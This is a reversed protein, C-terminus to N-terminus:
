RRSLVLGDLERLLKTQMVAEFNEFSQAAEIFADPGLIVEAQFYASLDAINSARNQGAPQADSGIVLANITIGKNTLRPKVARPRPGLNSKGDGSIDLTRRWCHTRQALHQAGLIMAVGLATGPTAEPRRETSRITEIAAGLAAPSSIQTWPLLTKQDKPGSWEFILLEVPPDPQDLLAARVPASDLANALGAIQLRYERADVSGSVDLGLALAQRCPEAAIASGSTLAFIAALTAAVPKM